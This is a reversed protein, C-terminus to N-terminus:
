LRCSGWVFLAGFPYVRKAVKSLVYTCGKLLGVTFMGKLSQSSAARPTSTSPHNSQIIPWKCYYCWSPSLTTCNYPRQIPVTCPYIVISCLPCIAYAEAWHLWVKHPFACSLVGCFLATGYFVASYFYARFLATCCLATSCLVLFYVASCYSM